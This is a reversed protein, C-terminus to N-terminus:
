LRKFRTAETMELGTDYDLQRPEYEENERQRTHGTYRWTAQPADTRWPRRHWYYGRFPDRTRNMWDLLQDHLQDRVVATEPCDILNHLEQPDTQLDYLEDSTLLNIVLKYRGECVARVPQFGGFGDHDVEYRGFEMFVCENVRCNPDRLAPQLSVGELLKPAPLEVAELITPLLDLHSVPHPCVGGALTVGPWRILLPIRTIEDYMVPGKGTLCHSQLMDGHDSTYIVLAGPAFQDVAALVRGIQSDVYSNCGLFYRPELTLADRDAERAAGAWVQQHAPKGELRDWVNPSKPWQYGEYMSAYPEPCLFPHHPEDYSVVLFFDEGQQQQLFTVARDSCRHGFCFESTLAPDNCTEVQRSRLRDEPSLEQLYCRLDYWCEPDWGEPCRGLGFYDGGDLHWKGIYGTHLGQDALRQGATKVNDGLAQSNSWVGNSHPTVGTFIAARAPGCVPQCCYAREFRLGEAALRDLHPTHMDPHGYCGLMDTRQTDTMILVVQRLPTM